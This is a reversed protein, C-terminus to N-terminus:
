QQRYPMENDIAWQEAYSGSTVILLINSNRFANPDISSVGAPIVIADVNNLDAFAEEEITSLDDPLILINSEQSYNEYLADILVQWLPSAEEIAQPAGENRLPGWLLSSGLVDNTSGLVLTTYAASHEAERMMAYTEDVAREDVYDYMNGIWSNNNDVGPTDNTYLDYILQIKRATGEDYVNPVGYINDSAMSLYTEADPGKPYMVCGWEDEMDSMESYERFGQWAQGSYFATTGEKWYAKFWDWNAGDPTPAMYEETWGQWQNLATLAEPRNASVELMGAENYDFFSANNSYMLGIALEDGSGTMGYIDIVGDNDIDRQVQEMISEMMEWTWTGSEQADYIDNWDIGAETLVRKNFYICSRPETKGANVGYVKDQVTMLRSDAQNWKDGSIDITWPMFLNGSLTGSIFDAAVAIVCLKSSDQNEVIRNLEDPNGSWDSLATEVIKCNYTEELWNRYEYLKQTDADPNMERSSHNEDDNSWWDYIWITEGGFNYPEGTAPDILIAPYENSVIIAKHCKICEGTERDTEHAEYERYHCIRCQRYDNLTNYYRWNTFSHEEAESIIEGCVWCYMTHSTDDYQIIEQGTHVIEIETNEASETKYGCLACIRHDRDCWTFHDESGIREGCLACIHYHTWEDSEWLNEDYLHVADGRFTVGTAGCYICSTGTCYRVHGCMKRHGCDVCILCHNEDDMYECTNENYHHEIYFCKGCKTCRRLHKDESYDEDNAFVHECFGDYLETIMEEWLPSAQEIAEQVTMSSLPGWLLSTGLVDSTRGLVLTTNAASHEEERIMAYTENVAREDTYDYLDGIWSNSNDVGPTENTYLDFILQIKRATEEDYVNPVGYINDNANSLYTEADPGKPYMVCGWEDEMDSMESYKQFGQWILGPYFATTGEKWYDKFWDWSAGEPMPTMYMGNWDQWRTLAALAEPRNAAIQLMGADNYDFFSANNSCMLGIALEDGSGTMGYVDLIGDNDIDRQVQAMISEMMEWTWTGDAQADYIDNWDIGAEALVRKNFYMCSSLQTKGVSVGYVKEKVTMVRSDAQNWKDESIDIRWPMFLNGSLTGSIFDSAVAIVCLKSSDQNQVISNLEDPNGAWDSLATEVIRCNYTEELWNRYEYLKQTDADPNMERSSHNEDDNSWWDYIWITEGGFDLGEIIDPYGEPVAPTTYACCIEMMCFLVALICAIILRKKM